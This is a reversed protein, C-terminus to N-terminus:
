RTDSGGRELSTYIWIETGRGGESGWRITVATRFVTVVHSRVFNKTKLYFVRNRPFM